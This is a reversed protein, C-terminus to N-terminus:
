WFFEIVNRALGAGVVVYIAWLFYHSQREPTLGSVFRQGSVIQFLYFLAGLVTALWLLPGAPHAKFGMAWKGHAAAAFSTTLGCGPCRVHFIAMMPCPPLGLQTHTGYLNPSPTLYFSFAVVAALFLFVPLECRAIEAFPVKVWQPKIRSPYAATVM